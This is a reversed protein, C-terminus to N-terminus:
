KTLLEIDQLKESLQEELVNIKTNNRLELDKFKYQLLEYNTEVKLLKNRTKIFDNSVVKSLHYDDDDEDNEDEYESEDSESVLEIDQYSNGGRSSTKNYVKTLDNM